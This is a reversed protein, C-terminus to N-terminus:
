GVKESEEKVLMVAKLTQRHNTVHMFCGLGHAVVVSGTSQLERAVVASTWVGKLRQEAVLSAEAILLM